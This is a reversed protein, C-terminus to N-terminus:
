RSFPVDRLPRRMLIEAAEAELPEGFLHGQVKDCGVARLLEFQERTEVGEAVVALGMNHALVIITQILPLSTGTTSLEAIFSQDIKLADVPLRRLYSLSSYGTGFDDISISVGVRRLEAMRRASSEVDRMIISETLELELCQPPVGNEGLARAVTDVFDPKAFQLMSVNIAVRTPPLGRRQWEGSLRCVEQLVWTGIAIIMGSEEAIPIFRAAGVRGFRPNNWALLAELSDLSGAGSVLPQFGLKLESKDLARRLQTELEMRNSSRVMLDPTFFQYDNKGQSKARYMAADAKQLLTRADTADEPFCSIGMTATVFLESEDVVYPGRLVEVIRAAQAALASREVDGRFLVTFEDGGVRAVRDHERAIGALRAGAQRLTEDGVSHGLTDNVQKFRDLDIFGVALPKGSRAAEQISEDLDQLFKLRNLLGTLPDQQAQRALEANLRARERQLHDEYIWRGLSKAMMELVEREHGTFPRVDSNQDSCFSLVGFLEDGAYIPTGITCPHGLSAEAPARPSGAGDYPYTFTGNKVLGRIQKSGQETVLPSESLAFEARVHVEETGFPMVLGLPMRFIECGTALYDDLLDELSSYGATALRHLQRLHESFRALEEAKATLAQEAHHLAELRVSDLSLDQGSFEVGVPAGRDFVLRMQARILIRDGGATVLRLNSTLAGGSGLQALMGDMAAVSDSPEVIESLGRGKLTEAAYGLKRETHPDIRLIRGALDVRLSLRDARVDDDPGGLGTRLSRIASGIAGAVASLAAIQQPTLVRPARDMVALVGAAPGIRLPTAAIFEVVEIGPVVGAHTLVRNRSLTEEFLPLTRSEWEAPMGVVHNTWRGNLARVGIAAMPMSLVQAAFGAALRLVGQAPAERLAVSLRSRVDAAIDQNSV